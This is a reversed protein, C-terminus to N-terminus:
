ETWYFRKKLAFFIVMKAGLALAKFVHSGERVGGDVYVEVQDGVANVIRPLAEIQFFLYIVFFYTLYTLILREKIIFLFLRTNVTAPTGDFQRGGHNSVLIASAGYKVGLIADEPSLLGKM